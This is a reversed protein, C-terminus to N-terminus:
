KGDSLYAAPRRWAAAVAAGILAGVCPALLFAADAAAKDHRETMLNLLCLLVVPMGMIILTSLTARFGHGKPAVLFQALALYLAAALVALFPAAPSKLEGVVFLPVVYGIGLMLSVVTRNKAM